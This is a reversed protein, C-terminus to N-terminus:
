SKIYERLEHFNKLCYFRLYFLFFRFSKGDTPALTASLTCTLVVSSTAKGGSTTWLMVDYSGAPLRKMVDCTLSTTGTTATVDCPVDGVEVMNDTITTEFQTGALTLTM